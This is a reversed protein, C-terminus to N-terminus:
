TRQKYYRNASESFSYNLQDVSYVGCNILRASDLDFLAFNHGAALGSRFCIGDIGQEQFWEALIQTPIYDSSNDSRAVPRSFANNILSWIANGIGEQSTPPNFILEVDDFRQRASFCDVIKLDRTTEFQAVSLMQGVHPRLEAMCTKEDNSLYLCPIGKPNARGEGCFEAKPKMRTESFGSIYPGDETEHEDYGIQSRCLINGKSLDGIRVPLTEKLSELFEGAASSRVYRREFRTHREFEEFDRWSKFIM